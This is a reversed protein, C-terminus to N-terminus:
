QHIKSISYNQARGSLKESFFTILFFFSLVLYGLVGDEFAVILVALTGLFTLPILLLLRLIAFLSSTRIVGFLVTVRSQVIGLILPYCTSLAALIAFVEPTFAFATAMLTAVGHLLCIWVLNAPQFIWALWGFGIERRAVMLATSRAVKALTYPLVLYNTMLVCFLWWIGEFLTPNGRYVMETDIFETAICLVFTIAVAVAWKRFFQWHHWRIVYRNLTRFVPLNLGYAEALALRDNVNLPDLRRAEQLLRMASDANGTSLQMRGLAHHAEAFEPNERLASAFLENAEDLRSLEALKRGRLLICPVHNPELALASATADLVQNRNGQWDYLEALRLFYDATPELRIAELIAKRASRFDNEAQRIHSIICYGHAAEPDIAIAETIAVNASTLDGQNFRAAALNIHAWVFEPDDALVASFEEAAQSYRKLDFLALGYEFHARM